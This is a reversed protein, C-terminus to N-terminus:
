NYEKAIDHLLRGLPGNYHKKGPWENWEIMILHDRLLDETCTEQHDGQLKELGEWHISHPLRYWCRCVGCQPQSYLAQIWIWASGSPLGAVWDTNHISCPASGTPDVRTQDTKGGLLSCADDETRQAECGANWVGVKETDGWWGNKWTWVTLVNLYFM